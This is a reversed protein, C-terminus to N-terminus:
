SSSVLQCLFLGGISMAPYSTESIGEGRRPLPNSGAGSKIRSSRSDSGLPAAVWGFLCCGDKVDNMMM